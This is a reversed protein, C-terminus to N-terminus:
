DVVSFGELKQRWFSTARPYIKVIEVMLYGAEERVERVEVKVQAHRFHALLAEFARRTRFRLRFTESVVEGRDLRSFLDGLGSLIRAGVREWTEGELKGYLEWQSLVYRVLRHTLYESPVDGLYPFVVRIDELHSVPTVYKLYIKGDASKLVVGERGEQDYRRLLQYLSDLRDPTFPGHIEPTPFEYAALLRYKEPPPLVEGEPLRMLDFVFFRVDEQIYPPWEGVFPNGPGAVECCVCLHPHDRFFEELRPLFDPYRDTAFPCIFGRRTAALIEDGVRFLRVNYGEIKEEVWFPGQLYRPVGTRLRFIRPIHPFSPIVTEPGFITGSPLGKFDRRLRFLPTRTGLVMRLRGESLAEEWVKLPFRRLLPNHPYIEALRKRDEKSYPWM